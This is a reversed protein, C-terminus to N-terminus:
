DHGVRPSGMSQLRGPEETWPIKWAVISSHTAMEKEWLAERGLSQVRTEWMTPLCKVMQAVLFTRCSSVRFKAPFPSGQHSLHYLIQRCHLLDLNSEQTPFIEQFLSYSGVGTNKGPSNWPCLLRTPQLGHSRLYDSGVLCSVSESQLFNFINHCLIYEKELINSM